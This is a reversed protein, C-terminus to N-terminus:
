EAVIQVADGANLAPLPATIVRDGAALGATIRTLGGAWTGGTEVSVAELRGDTIRLLQVADATERLAVSPVALAADAQEVVIQGSAFMGGLLVGDANDITVYVPITRTGEEAVPNIRTVIGEFIRTGLGDVKVSVSQGPALSAGTGVPANAQMEVSTLDVITMLSTGIGVYQGPEATRASIIGDFPAVVTANALRLEAGAVQDDQASVSARLGTVNSEAEDLSSATTVGRDVLTQVRELQLEALALQARTAAANSRVQALELTLTQVDIQALVDGEAVRDGPKARVDEIRGNVQSSLQAQRIPRLTGIVRVTRQLTQPALVAMELPNIQMPLEAPAPTQAMDVPPMFAAKNMYALGGAIALVLLMWPWKRRKPPLGERRRRAREAEGKSMAWDPKPENADQTPTQSSM